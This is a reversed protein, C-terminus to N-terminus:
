NRPDANIPNTPNPPRNPPTPNAPPPNLFHQYTARSLDQILIRARDDNHPRGVLAAIAYRKGMPTDVIGVDGLMSGIDGTKHAIVAQEDLGQPLLDRNEVQQMIRILQDRSRLSVLKGDHVMALLTVLDLPSTENTGTLDPLLNQISTQKLGWDRFRENLLPASGLRQILMNTATNDSITIMKEATAELSYTTGPTEYQMTGSGSAMMETTMVLPESLDVLGRDVEQFVAILIPLKITSAAAMTATGNLNVFDGTDLDVVFVSTQLDPQQAAIADLTGKLGTLEQGLQLPPVTDAPSPPPTATSPSEHFGLTASLTGLVVGTGVLAIAGRSVWVALTQLPGQPTPAPRRPPSSRRPAIAPPPPNTSPLPDSSKPAPSPVVKLHRPRKAETPSASRLPELKPRRRRLPTVPPPPSPPPNVGASRLQTEKAAAERAMRRRRRRGLEESAM